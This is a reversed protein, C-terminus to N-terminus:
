DRSEKITDPPICFVYETKDAYAAFTILYRRAESRYVKLVPVVNDESENVKVNGRVEEIYIGYKYLYKNWSDKIVYVEEEGAFANLKIEKVLRTDKYGAVPIFLSFALVLIALILCFAYGVTKNMVYKEVISCCGILAILGFILILM